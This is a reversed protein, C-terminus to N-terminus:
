DTVAHTVRHLSHPQASRLSIDGATITMHADSTDLLLCGDINIGRAVGQQQLKGNEHLIVPQNQYAHLEHWRDIFPKLGHQNFEVLMECLAEAMTALLNNRDLAQSSLYATPHDITVDRQANPHVNIGVGIVAWVRTGNEAEHHTASEILVGGLKAGDLLLDNPWKLQVSWGLQHLANAVAVGVALPLGTLRNIGGEFPWALSFCLSDGIASSWSRGARGRGATQNETALLMPASLQPIRARLEANTSPTSARVEIQLGRAAAGLQRTIQDAILPTSMVRM